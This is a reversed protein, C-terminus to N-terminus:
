DIGKRHDGVGAYGSSAANSYPSEDAAFGDYGEGEM